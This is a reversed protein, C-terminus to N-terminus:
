QILIIIIVKAFRPLAKRSYSALGSGIQVFSPIYTISMVYGHIQCSDSRLQLVSLRVVCLFRLWVPCFTKKPCHYSHLAGKSGSMRSLYRVNKFCRAHIPRLSSRRSFLMETWHTKCVWFFRRKLSRPQSAQVGHVTWVGCNRAVPTMEPALWCGLSSQTKAWSM